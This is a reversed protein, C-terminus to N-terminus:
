EVAPGGLKPEDDLSFGALAGRIEILAALAVVLEVTRAIMGHQQLVYAIAPEDGYHREFADVFGRVARRKEQYRQRVTGRRVCAIV